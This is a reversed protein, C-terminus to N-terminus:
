HKANERNSNNKVQRRKVMIQLMSEIMRKQQQKKKREVRSIQKVAAETVAVKFLRQGVEMAERLLEFTNQVAGRNKRSKLNLVAFDLKINKPKSRSKKLTLKFRPAM